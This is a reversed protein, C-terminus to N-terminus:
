CPLKLLQLDGLIRDKELDWKKEGVIEMMGVFFEILHRVYPTNQIFTIEEKWERPNDCLGKTVDFGNKILEKRSSASEPFSLELKSVLERSIVSSSKSHKIATL